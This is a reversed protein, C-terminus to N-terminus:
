VEEWEYEKEYISGSCLIATLGIFVCLIILTIAFEADFKILKYAVAGIILLCFGLIKQGISEWNIVRKAKRQKELRRELSALKEEEPIYYVHVNNNM